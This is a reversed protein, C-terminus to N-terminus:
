NGHRIHKETSTKYKENEDIANIWRKRIDKRASLSIITYSDKPLNLNKV